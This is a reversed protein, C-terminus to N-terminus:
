NVHYNFDDSYNQFQFRELYKREHCFMCYGSIPLEKKIGQSFEYLGVYNHCSFGCVKEKPDKYARAGFKLFVDDRVYHLYPDFGPARSGAGLAAPIPTDTLMTLFHLFACTIPYEENRSEVEDLEVQIGGSQKGNGQQVTVLVQYINYM